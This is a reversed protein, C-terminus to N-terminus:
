QAPGARGRWAVRLRALLGLAGRAQEARRMAAAEGEARDARAREADRAQELRDARAEAAEARDRLAAIATEFGSVIRRIDTPDALTDTPNSAAKDTPNANRPEAWTLPVLVRARGDNGLAKRWGQRRILRDASASSIQRVRALEAKSLWRGDAM